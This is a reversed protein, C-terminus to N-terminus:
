GDNGDYCSRFRLLARPHAAGEEQGNWRFLYRAGHSVSLSVFLGLSFRVDANRRQHAPM